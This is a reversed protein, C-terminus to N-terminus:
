THLYICQKYYLLLVLSFMVAQAEDLKSDSFLLFYKYFTWSVCVQVVSRKVMESLLISKTFRKAVVTTILSWLGKREVFTREVVM